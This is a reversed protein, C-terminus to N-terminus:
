QPGSSTITLTSYGAGCYITYANTYFPCIFAVHKSKVEEPNKSMNQWSLYYTLDAITYPVRGGTQVCDTAIQASSQTPYMLGLLIISVYYYKKFFTLINM